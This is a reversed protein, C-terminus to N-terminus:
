KTEKSQQNNTRLEDMSWGYVDCFTKANLIHNRSDSHRCFEIYAIEGNNKLVQKIIIKENPELQM